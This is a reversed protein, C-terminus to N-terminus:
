KEAGKIGNRCIGMPSLTMGSAGRAVETIKKGPTALFRAIKDALIAPDAKKTQTTTESLKRFYDKSHMTYDEDFKM